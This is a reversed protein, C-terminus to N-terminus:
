NNTLFTMSKRCFCIAPSCWVSTRIAKVEQSVASMSSMFRTIHIRFWLPHIKRFCNTTPECAGHSRFFYTFSASLQVCRISEDCHELGVRDVFDPLPNLGLLVWISKQWFEQNPSMSIQFIISIARAELSFQSELFATFAHCRVQLNLAPAAASFWSALCWM